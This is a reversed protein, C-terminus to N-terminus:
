KTTQLVVIRPASGDAFQCTVSTESNGNRWAIKVSTLAAGSAPDISLTHLGGPQTVVASEQVSFEVPSNNSDKSVIVDRQGGDIRYAITADTIDQAFYMAPCSNTMAPDAGEVLVHLRKPAKSPHDHSWINRGDVPSASKDLRGKGNTTTSNNGSDVEQVEISGNSVIIPPRDDEDRAALMESVAYGIALGVFVPLLIRVVLEKISFTSPM